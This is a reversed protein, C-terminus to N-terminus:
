LKPPLKGKPGGQIWYQHTRARVREFTHSKARTVYMLSMQALATQRTKVVIASPRPFREPLVRSSLYRFITCIIIILSQIAASCPFADGAAVTIFRSLFPCFLRRREVYSHGRVWSRRRITTDDNWTSIRPDLWDVVNKKITQRKRGGGSTIEMPDYNIKWERKWPRLLTKLRPATERSM